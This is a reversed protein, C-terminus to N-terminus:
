LLSYTFQVFTGTAELRRGLRIARGERGQLLTLHQGERFHSLPLILSEPRRGSKLEPILIAPKQVPRPSTEDKVEAGVPNVSILQIGTEIGEGPPNCLWRIVGVAWRSTATTAQIGVLYGVGLEPVENGEWRVCYGGAGENVTRQRLIQSQPVSRKPREDWIRPPPEESMWSSPGFSVDAPTLFISDQEDTPVLSLGSDGELSLASDGGLDVVEIGRLAFDGDYHPDDRSMAQHVAAFGVALKLDFHLETREYRREGARGWSAALREATGRTIGPGEKMPQVSGLDTSFLDWAEKLWAVLPATDLIAAPPSPRGVVLSPRPPLDKDFSIVFRTPGPSYPTASRIHPLVELGELLRQVQQQELQRLHYPNAMSFALMCLYEGGITGRRTRDDQLFRVGVDTWKNGVAFVYLAHLDRWLHTPYPRYVLAALRLTFATRRVAKFLAVVLAKRESMGPHGMGLEHACVKYGTALEAYLKLALSAGVRAKDSLPLTTDMFRRCLFGVATDVPTLLLDLLALRTLPAIEVRNLRSLQKLLMQGARGGSVLPVEDLWQRLERVRVPLGPPPLERHPIRIGLPSTESM